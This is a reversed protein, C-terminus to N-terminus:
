YKTSDLTESGTRTGIGRFVTYDITDGIFRVSGDCMLFNDGASHFSIPDRTNLHHSKTPLERAHFQTMRAHDDDQFYSAPPVGPVPSPVFFESKGKVAGIWVAELRTQKLVMDAIGPLPCGCPATAAGLWVTDIARVDGNHRESACLTQALGDVVDRWRTHSNRSFIGQRDEPTADMDAPGFNGVYNARAYEFGERVIRDTTFPDSPCLYAEIRQQSATTNAGSWLPLDFNIANFTGTQEIQPLIMAAWGYGGWKYGPEHFHGPPLCGTQDHYTHLAIGIQKLNNACQARRAAERAAQVAPLLLAVLVAIIAIVVLLEILTFGHTQSTRRLM